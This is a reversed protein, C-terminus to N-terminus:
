GCRKTLHATDRGELAM